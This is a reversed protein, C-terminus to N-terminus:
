INKIMALDVNGGSIMLGMRKCGKLPNRGSLLAALGVAGSPEIILKLRSMAFRMAEKIEDDSVTVIEEVHKQIIPFTVEGPSVVRLGDAITKPPTIEVRKGVRLSLRTDDADKPEVGIIRTTPSVGHAAISTGSILGGGGVPVVWADVEEVEQMLELAATGAGAIIRPDDFPRILTMGQGESFKRAIAERDERLRDYFVIEGGYGKAAEVKISPSDLPMCNVARIGLIKAALAVAQAHNGSSFAVVGRQKEEDTLQSLTHYAGRFKFAGARQFNECKLFVEYGTMENLTRSTIVPTRHVIGQIREFAQQVSTFTPELHM